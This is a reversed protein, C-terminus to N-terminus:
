SRPLGNFAIILMLHCDWTSMTSRISSSLPLGGFSSLSKGFVFWEATLTERLTDSESKHLVLSPELYVGNSRGGERGSDSRDHHGSEKDDRSSGECLALYEM